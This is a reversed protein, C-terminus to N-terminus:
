SAVAHDVVSVLIINAAQAALGARILNRVGAIPGSFLRPRSFVDVGLALKFFALASELSECL